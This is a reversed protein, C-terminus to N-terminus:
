RVFGRIRQVEKDIEVELEEATMGLTRSIWIKREVKEHEAELEEVTMMSLDDAESTVVKAVALGDIRNLLHTAASLRVMTPQEPDHAFTYYLECMEEALREKRERREEGAVSYHGRGPGPTGLAPRKPKISAGKAPGGWGPGNAPGGWGDGNGKRTGSTPSRKKEAM